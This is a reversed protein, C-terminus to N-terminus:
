VKGAQMVFPPGSKLYDWGNLIAQRVLQCVQKPQLNEDLTRGLYFKSEMMPVRRSTLGVIRLHSANAEEHQVIIVLSVSDGNTAAESVVYRFSIDDIQIRKSSSRPLM